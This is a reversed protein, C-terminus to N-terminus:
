SFDENVDDEVWIVTLSKKDASFPNFLFQNISSALRDYFKIKRWLLKTYTLLFM